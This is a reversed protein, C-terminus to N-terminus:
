PYPKQVKTIIKGVLDHKHFYILVFLGLYFKTWPWFFSQYEPGNPDANPYKILFVIFGLLSIVFWYLVFWTFLATKKKPKKIKKNM